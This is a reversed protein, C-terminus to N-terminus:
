IRGPRRTPPAASRPYEAPHTRDSLVVGTGAAALLAAAVEPRVDGPGGRVFPNPSAPVGSHGDAVAAPEPIADAGEEAPASRWLRRAAEVERDQKRRWAALLDLTEPPEVDQRPDAPAASHPSQDRPPAAREELEGAGASLGATLSDIVQLAVSPSVESDASANGGSTFDNGGAQVAAVAVSVEFDRSFGTTAVGGQSGPFDLALSNGQAVQTPVATLTAAPPAPPSLSLTITFVTGFTSLLTPMSTNDLLFTVTHTARDIVLSNPVDTAGQLPLRRGTLPDIYELVPDNKDGPLAAYHIVVLAQDTPAVGLARVDFTAVTGRHGPDPNSGQGVANPLQAIVIAAINVEPGFRFLTASGGGVTVTASGDPPVTKVDFGFPPALFVFVTEPAIATGGSSDSVAVLITYTGEHAYTHELLFTGDANVTVPQLGTGDNFDATGSFSENTGPDQLKGPIEVQQGVGFALSGSPPLTLAPPINQVQLTLSGSDSDGAPDLVTVRVSDTNTPVGAPNTLLFAHTAQFSTVGAALQLFTPTSGDGWDIEVTHSDDSNPDSFTGALGVSQGELANETSLSLGTLEPPGNVKRPSSFASTNGNADTSTAVVLASFPVSSDSLTFAQTMGAQSAPVTVAGLFTEGQGGADAVFLEVRLPYAFASPDAPVLFEVTLQGNVLEVRTLVPAPEQDNGSDVLTIGGGRNNFISNGLIPNLSSLVRVGSAGNNAITNAVDPSTGGISEGGADSELDIGAAANGLPTAGDLGVGILNGIVSNHGTGSGQFLIGANRNAVIM